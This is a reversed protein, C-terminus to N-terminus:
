IEDCRWLQAAGKVGSSDGHINKLIPTNFQDNFVYRAVNEYGESYLRDINSLGGGLVIADPDLINIVMALARGFRDFFRQMAAEALADGQVVLAVIDNANFARNGGHRHYDAALGPGSILTEVCGKQGCYCDPGNRETGSHQPGM